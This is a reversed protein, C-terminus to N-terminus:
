SSSLKARIVVLVDDYRNKIGRLDILEVVGFKSFKDWNEISQLDEVVYIGDQNLHDILVEAAILQHELLHSGDDIIIDFKRNKVKESLVEKNSVDLRIFEYEGPLEANFDMGTIIGDVLFNKWAKMSGGGFVGIELLSAKKGVYKSLLKPYVTDYSHTSDKDSGYEKFM